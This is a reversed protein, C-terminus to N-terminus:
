AAEHAALERARKWEAFSVPPDQWEAVADAGFEEVLWELYRIRLTTQPDPRKKRRRRPLDGVRAQTRITAKM